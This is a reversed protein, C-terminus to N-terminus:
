AQSQAPKNWLCQIDNDNVVSINNEFNRRFSSEVRFYTKQSGCFFWPLIIYFKYYDANLQVDAVSLKKTTLIARFSSM